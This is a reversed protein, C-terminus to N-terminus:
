SGATFNKRWANRIHWRYSFLRKVYHGKIFVVDAAGAGPMFAPREGGVYGFEGDIDPARERVPDILKNTIANMSWSAFGNDLFKSAASLGASFVVDAAPINRAGGLLASLTQYQVEM